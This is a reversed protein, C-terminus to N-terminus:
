TKMFIIFFHFIFIDITIFCYYMLHGVRQLFFPNYFTNSQNIYVYISSTILLSYKYALIIKFSFCSGCTSDNSKLQLQQQKDHPEINNNASFYNQSSFLTSISTANKNANNAPQQQQQQQQQLQHLHQNFFQYQNLVSQHNYTNSNSNNNKNNNNYINTNYANFGNNTHYFSSSSSSSNSPLLANNLQEQQLQFALTGKNNNTNTNM